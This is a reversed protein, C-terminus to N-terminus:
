AYDPEQPISAQNVGLAGPSVHVDKDLCDGFSIESCVFCMLSGTMIM